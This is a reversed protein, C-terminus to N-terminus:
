GGQLPPETHQFTCGAGPPPKTAFVYLYFMWEADRLCDNHKHTHTSLEGGHRSPTYLLNAKEAGSCTFFTAGNFM